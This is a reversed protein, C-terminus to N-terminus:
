SAPAAMTLRELGGYLLQEMKLRPAKITSQALAGAQKIDRPMEPM